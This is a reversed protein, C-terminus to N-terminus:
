PSKGGLAVALALLASAWRSAAADLDYALIDGMASVDEQGMADKIARLHVRLDATAGALTHPPVEDSLPINMVDVNLVAGAREVVERVAQWSSFVSGLQDYASTMDGSQIADAAAQQTERLQELAGAADRLSGAVLERPDASILQIVRISTLEDSPDALLDDPIREGDGKVEVVIRQSAQAAAVGARLAEALTPRAIKLTRGDLLVEVDHIHTM